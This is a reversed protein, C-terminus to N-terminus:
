APLQLKCAAAPGAASIRAAAECISPWGALPSRAGASSARASFNRLPLSAAAASCKLRSWFFPKWYRCALRSPSLNASTPCAWTRTPSLPRDAACAAARGQMDLRVHGVGGGLVRSGGRRGVGPLAGRVCM